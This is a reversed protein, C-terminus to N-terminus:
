ALRCLMFTHGPFRTRYLVLTLPLDMIMNNTALSRLNDLLVTLPNLTQLRGLRSDSPIAYVVPSLFRLPVLAISM